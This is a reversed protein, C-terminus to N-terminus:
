RKLGQSRYPVTQVGYRAAIEGHLSRDLRGQGHGLRKPTRETAQEGYQDRGSQEWRKRKSLGLRQAGRERARDAELQAHQVHRRERGQPQERLIRDLVVDLDVRHLELAEGVRARREGRAVDLEGGEARLVDREGEPLPHLRQHADGTHARAVIAEDHAFAFVHRVPRRKGVFADADAGPGDGPELEGGGDLLVAQVVALELDHVDNAAAAVVEPRQLALLDVQRHHPLRETRLGDGLAKARVRGISWLRELVMPPSM